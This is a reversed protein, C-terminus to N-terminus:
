SVISGIRRITNTGHLCTTCSSDAGAISASVAVVESGVAIASVAVRQAAGSVSRASVSM